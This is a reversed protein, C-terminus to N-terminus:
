KLRLITFPARTNEDVQAAIALAEEITITPDRLYAGRAAKGGSGIAWFPAEILEPYPDTTCMTFIGQENVLLIESEEDTGVVNFKPKKKDSFDHKAWDLFRTCDGADGAAGIIDGKIRVIKKAPYFGGIKSVMTDAGMGELTAVITTM